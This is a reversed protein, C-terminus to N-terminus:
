VTGWTGCRDCIILVQLSNLLKCPQLIFLLRTLQVAPLCYCHLKINSCVKYLLVGLLVSSRAGRCILLAALPGLVLGALSVSNPSLFHSLRFTRELSESLPLEVYHITPPQLLYKVSTASSNSSCWVSQISIYLELDRWTFYLVTLGVLLRIVVQGGTQGTERGM